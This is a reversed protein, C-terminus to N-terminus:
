GAEQAAKITGAFRITTAKWAEDPDIIEEPKGVKVTECVDRSSIGYTQARTFLQGLDKLPPWEGEPEETPKTDPLNPNSAIADQPSLYKTAWDIAKKGAEDEVKIVKAVLLEVIGKFATQTEFSRSEIRDKKAWDEKSMDSKQGTSAPPSTSKELLKVEIINTYKGKVQLEAEIVDGPNLDKLEALFGSMKAGTEDTIITPKNEATSPSVEKVVIKQM